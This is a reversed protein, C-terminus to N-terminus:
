ANIMVTAPAAIVAAKGGAQSPPDPGAGEIGRCPATRPGATGAVPMAAVTGEDM